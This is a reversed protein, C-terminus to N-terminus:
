LLRSDFYVECGRAPDWILYERQLLLTLCVFRLKTKELGETKEIFVLDDGSCKEFIEYIGGM